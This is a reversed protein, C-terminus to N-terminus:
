PDVAYFKCPGNVMVEVVCLKGAKAVNRMTEILAPSNPLFWGVEVRKKAPAPANLAALVALQSKRM